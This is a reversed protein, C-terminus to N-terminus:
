KAVVADAKCKKYLAIATAVLAVGAVAALGGKQVHPPLADFHTKVACASSSVFNQTATFFECSKQAVVGAFTSFIESLRALLPQVTDKVRTALEGVSASASTAQAQIWNAGAQAAQLTNNYVNSM